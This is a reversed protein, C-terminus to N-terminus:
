KLRDAMYGTHRVPYSITKNAHSRTSVSKRSVRPLARHSRIPCLAYGTNASGFREEPVDKIMQLALDNDGRYREFRFSRQFTPVSANNEM